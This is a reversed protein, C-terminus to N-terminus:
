SYEGEWVIISNVVGLVIAINVINVVNGINVICIIFINNDSSTIIIIARHVSISFSPHSQEKTSHRM